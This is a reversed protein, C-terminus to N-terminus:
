RVQDKKGDAAEKYFTIHWDMDTVLTDLPIGRSEYGMAIGQVNCSDAIEMVCVCVCVCVYWTEWTMTPGTALTSSALHM